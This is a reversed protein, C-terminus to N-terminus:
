DNEETSPLPGQGATFADWAEPEGSYALRFAGFDGNRETRWEGIGCTQGAERILFLLSELPVKGENLTGSLLIAWREFMGRWRHDAGRAVGGTRVMDERMVPPSGWVRLLPITCVADPRATAVPYNRARIFLASKLDTKAIGRDKHAAAAIASKIAMAPFGCVPTGDAAEGMSYLSSQFEKVPDPAERDPKAVKSRTDLMQKRMKASWNHCILPSTGILWINIPTMEAPPKVAVSRSVAAPRKKTTTTM